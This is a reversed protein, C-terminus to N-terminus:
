NRRGSKRLIEDAELSAMDLLHGLVGLHHRHAIQTLDSLVDKIYLAAEEPGGSQQRTKHSDSGWLSMGTGKAAVRDFRHARNLDRISVCGVICGM